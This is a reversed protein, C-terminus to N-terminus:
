DEKLINAIEKLRRLAVPDIDKSVTAPITITPPDSDLDVIVTHWPCPLPYGCILGPFERDPKKCYGKQSM